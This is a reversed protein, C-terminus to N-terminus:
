TVKKRGRLIKRFRTRNSITAKSQKASLTPRVLSTRATRKRESTEVKHRHAYPKSSPKVAESGLKAIDEAGPLPSGPPRKGPRTTSTAAKKRAPSRKEALPGWGGLVVRLEEVIAERAEDRPIGSKLLTHYDTYCHRAHATVALRVKQETSLTTTRGVRGSGKVLAQKAIAEVEEPPIRPYYQVIDKTFLRNISNDRKKVAAARDGRTEAEASKVQRIVNLPCRLGTRVGKADQVVYLTKNERQTLRRCNATIYVNGKPVFGYGHPVASNAGVAM